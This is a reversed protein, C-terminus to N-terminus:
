HTSFRIVSPTATSEANKTGKTVLERRASKRAMPFFSELAVPEIIVEKSPGIISYWM